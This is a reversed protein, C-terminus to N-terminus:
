PARGGGQRLMRRLEPQSAHLLTNTPIARPYLDAEQADRAAAERSERYSADGMRALAADLSHMSGPPVANAARHARHTIPPPGRGWNDRSLWLGSATGLLGLTLYAEPLAWARLMDILLGLAFAAVAIYTWSWARRHQAPHLLDVRCAASAMIGLCAAILLAIAASEIITVLIAIM